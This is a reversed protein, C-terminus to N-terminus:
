SRRKLEWAHIELNTLRIGSGFSQVGWGLMTLGYRLHERERSMIFGEKQRHM